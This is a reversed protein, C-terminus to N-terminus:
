QSSVAGYIAVFIAFSLFLISVECSNPSFFTGYLLGIGILANYVGQNKM